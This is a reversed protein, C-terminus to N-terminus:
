IFINIITNNVDVGWVTTSPCAERITDLIDAINRGSFSTTVNYSKYSVDPETFIVGIGEIKGKLSMVADYVSLTSELILSGQITQNTLKYWLPVCQITLGNDELTSVYGAWVKRDDIYYEVIDNLIYNGFIKAFKIYSNSGGQRNMVFKYENFSESAGAVYTDKNIIIYQGKGSFIPINSM